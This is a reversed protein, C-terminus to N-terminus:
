QELIIRLEDITKVQVNRILHGKELPGVIGLGELQEMIRKARGNGIGMKKQLHSVSAIQLLVVIYAAEELRDDYKNPVSEVQGEPLYYPSVPARDVQDNIATILRVIEANSIYGGQIREIDYGSQFLMDGNGILKEAGAQDLIVSSDRRSSTRFAMRTTINSKLLGTIVDASPRQTTLVLHIGAQKGKQLISIISRYINNSLVKDPSMTLDAFENIITVIYPHRREEKLREEMELCLSRLVKDATIIGKVIYNSRENDEGESYPVWAFYDGRLEQFACLEVSTPDIFVFKLDDPSKRFLLSAVLTNVAITKGQKTAGAMLIHPTEVLDIVKIRQSISYGIAVPLEANTEVYASSELLSRLPVISRSRNAYEIGLGDESLIFRMGKCGTSIAIDDQLFKASRYSQGEALKVTLLSVSPGISMTSSEVKIRHNALAKLILLCRAEKIEEPLVEHILDAHRELIQPLPLTYKM